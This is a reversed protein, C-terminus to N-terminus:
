LSFGKVSNVSDQTIEAIGPPRVISRLSDGQENFGFILFGSGHNALAICAKALTAKDEEQTLDLWAKYEVALDERPESILPQLDSRM